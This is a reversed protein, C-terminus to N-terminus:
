AADIRKQRTSGGIWRHFPYRLVKNPVRKGYKCVVIHQRGAKNDTLSASRKGLALRRSLALDGGM